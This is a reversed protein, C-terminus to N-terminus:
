NLTKEFIIKYYQPSYFGLKENPVPLNQVLRYGEKAKQSIIEECEKINKDKSERIGNSIVVDVFEYTYM